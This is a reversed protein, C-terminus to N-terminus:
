AKAVKDDWVKAAEEATKAKGAKVNKSARPYIRVDGRWVETILENATLEPLLTRPNLKVQARVMKDTLVDNQVGMPLAVDVEHTKTKREESIVKYSM